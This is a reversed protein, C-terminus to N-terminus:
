SPASPRAWWLLLLMMECSDGAFHPATGEESRQGWTELHSPREAPSILGDPRHPRGTAEVQVTGCCGAGAHRRRAHIMQPLRYVRKQAKGPRAMEGRQLGRACVCVSWSNQSELYNLPWAQCDFAFAAGSDRPMPAQNHGTPLSGSEGYKTDSRCSDLNWAQTEIKPVTVRNTSTM